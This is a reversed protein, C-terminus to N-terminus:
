SIKKIRRLYKEEKSPEVTVFQEIIDKILEQKTYDQSLCIVNADNHLRLNKIQEVYFILGARIHKNRNLAMCIGEGSGCVAIGMSDPENLLKKALTRAFDPFDDTPYNVPSLDIINPHTELIFKKLEVGAHDSIIYLQMNQTTLTDYCNM